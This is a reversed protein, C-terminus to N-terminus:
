RLVKFGYLSGCVLPTVNAVAHACHSSKSQGQSIEGTENISSFPILQQLCNDQGPSATQSLPCNPATQTSQGLSRSGGLTKLLKQAAAGTLKQVPAAM